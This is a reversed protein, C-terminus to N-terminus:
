LKVEMFEERWAQKALADFDIEAWAEASAAAAWAAESAAEAAAEAAASASAAEAAEAEAWAAWAAAWAAWAAAWAEAAEAAAWAEAAEAAAEAAATTRDKGSLWNNAWLTFAPNKYVTMACYIAFRVRINTYQKDSLNVRIIRKTTLTFCASKGWDSIADNDSEAEWLVPNQINAHEPNIMLALEWSRYYHLVDESCMVPNSKQPLTHTVDIGWQTNNKTQYNQDTLKYCIM